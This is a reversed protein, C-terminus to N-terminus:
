QCGCYLWSYRLDISYNIDNCLAILLIENILIDLLRSKHIQLSTPTM